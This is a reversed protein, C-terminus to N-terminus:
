QFTWALVRSKKQGQSMPLVRWARAGARQIAKELGGLTHEKSVLTTFWRCQSGFGASERIMRGLFALEGGECWLEAGQGGFNVRQKEHLSGALEPRGMKRWKKRNVEAAEAASSHFPPNCVSADFRDDPEVVGEFIRLPDRQRRLTVAAELPPNQCLIARASDLSAPNVDVGTFSWGYEHFGIIPFICSAGTGIDLIRVGPGRPVVGGTGESFLDSLQHMYDARGPIAPCLAGEPIDWGQLGYQECLIARNLAKVGEPDTFDISLEGRRNKSAFRKLDPSVTMLRGFDYHGQHRNRVHFVGKKLM